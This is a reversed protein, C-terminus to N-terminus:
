IEIPCNSNFFIINEDKKYHTVYALKRGDLKLEAAEPAAGLDMWCIRVLHWTSPTFFLFLIGASSKWGLTCFLASHHTTDGVEYVEKERSRKCKNVKKERGLLFSMAKDKEWKGVGPTHDYIGRPHKSSQRHIPHRM